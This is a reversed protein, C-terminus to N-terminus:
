IKQSNCFFSVGAACCRCENDHLKLRKRSLSFINDFINLPQNHIFVYHYFRNINISLNMKKAATLSESLSSFICGYVFAFFLSYFIDSRRVNSYYHKHLHLNKKYSFWMLLFNFSRLLNKNDNLIALQTARSHFYWVACNLECAWGSLWNSKPNTLVQGLLSTM